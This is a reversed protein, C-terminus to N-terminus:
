ESASFSLKVVYEIESSTSNIVDIVTGKYAITTYRNLNYEVDNSFAARAMDEKFERYGLRIINEEPSGFYILTRQSNEKSVVADKFEEYGVKEGCYQATGSSMCVAGDLQRIMLKHYPMAARLGFVQSCAIIGKQKYWVYKEDEGIRLAVGSDIFWGSAV